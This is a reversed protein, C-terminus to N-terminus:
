NFLRLIDNYTVVLLLTLLLIFMIMHLYNEITKNVKRRTIAEYGIFVIRGGDLAPIPLLNLIGLNVSLFAVWNLLTIVGQQFATSTMSFIGVPGALDGVGVTDGFLMRLTDFIMTSAGAVGTFGSMLSQSFNFEHVPSVGITVQAIRAGQSELLERGYADVDYTHTEGDRLVEIELTGGAENDDMSQLLDGWTDITTDNVRTIVDGQTLGAERAPTNQQVEGISVEHPDSADPNSSVGISFIQINPTLTEEIVEGDRELHLTLEREARHTQMAQSFTDWNEIDMTDEVGVVRDGIEVVNEAPHGPEVVGIENTINGDADAQPFGTMFGIIIFLFFALIFNMFPGAFITLFRELLTKSEFSRDYPAVQLKKNKFVYFAENDVLEDNIHLPDGDKGTLDVSDVKIKEAHQYRSDDVDMIMHTIKGNDDKLIRLTQGVKVMDENVEEGAMMVYGGIPIARLAYLTEGKKKKYLIPGMGVSFEHCLIGARKAMIMHGLEHLMIVLGLVLVFAIISFIFM